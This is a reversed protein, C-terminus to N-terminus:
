CILRRGYYGHYAAEQFRQGSGVRRCRGGVLQAIVRVADCECMSLSTCMLLAVCAHGCDDRSLM